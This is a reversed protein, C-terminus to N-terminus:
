PAFGGVGLDMEVRTLGRGIAQVSASGARRNQEDQGRQAVYGRELTTTDTRVINAEIVRQTGKPGYAVARLSVVGRGPNGRTSGDRLPDGDNEAADDAVWVVVYLSSAITGGAMLADMPSHAYLKWQPNNTGWPRVETSSNMEAMSCTTVKGCNAKNTAETLDLTSGDKLRRAGTPAGDVFSSRVEGRLIPNWDPNAVLDPLVRELAADAAYLGEQANRYNGVILVETTTTMVLGLGLASLLTTAILAIFLAAGREERPQLRM